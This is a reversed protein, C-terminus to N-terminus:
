LTDQNSPITQAGPTQDEALLFIRRLAPVTLIKRRQGFPLSGLEFSQLFGLVNMINLARSHHRKREPKTSIRAPHIFM